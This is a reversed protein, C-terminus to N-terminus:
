DAFSPASKPRLGANQLGFHGQYPIRLFAPSPVFPFLVKPKAPTRLPFIFISM